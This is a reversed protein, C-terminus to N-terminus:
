KKPAFDKQMQTKQIATTPMASNKGAPKGSGSKSKATKKTKARREVTKYEKPAKRVRALVDSLEKALARDKLVKVRVQAM